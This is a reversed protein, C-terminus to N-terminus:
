NSEQPPEPAAEVGEVARPDAPLDKQTEFVDSFSTRLESIMSVSDRCSAVLFRQSGVELVHLQKRPGLYTSGVVRIKGEDPLRGRPLFRKAALFAGVGLVLIVVVYAIMKGLYGETEPLKPLSKGGTNERRLLKTIHGPKEAPKTTSNSAAPAAAPTTASANGDAAAQGAAPVSWGLGLGALAVCTLGMRWPLGVTRMDSM